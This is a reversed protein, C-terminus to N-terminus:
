AEAGCICCDSCGKKIREKGLDQHPEPLFGSGRVKNKKGTQLINIILGFFFVKLFLPLFHYFTTAYELFQKYNQLL